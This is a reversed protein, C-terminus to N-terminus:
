PTGLAVSLFFSGRVIRSRCRRLKIFGVPKQLPDGLGGAATGIEWPARFLEGGHVRFDRLEDAVFVAKRESWRHMVSLNMGDLHADAGGGGWVSRRGVIAHIM